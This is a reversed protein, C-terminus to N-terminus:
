YCSKSKCIRGTKPSWDYKEIAYKCTDIYYFKRADENWALGSSVKVDSMLRKVGQQKTYRYFGANASNSFSCIEKRFTGGYFRGKADAKGHHIHNKSYKSDQELQFVERLVRAMPSRGDWFIIKIGRGLGVAFQNPCCKLPIIFSVMQENEIIAPYIRGEKYDFRFITNNVGFIDCYYLSQTKADWHPSEGFLTKVQPIPIVEYCKSPILSSVTQYFSCFLIALLKWM